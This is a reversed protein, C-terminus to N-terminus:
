RARTVEAELFDALREFPNFGIVRV